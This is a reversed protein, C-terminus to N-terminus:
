AYSGCIEEQPQGAGFVFTYCCYMLDVCEGMIGTMNEFKKLWGESCVNSSCGNDIVAGLALNGDDRFTAMVTEYYVGAFNM